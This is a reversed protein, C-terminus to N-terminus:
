FGGIRGGGGWNGGGFGGGRNGFGSNGFGSNGFGSNGLGFNGFGSNGFGSNGFGSNGFGSNGFGGGYNGGMTFANARSIPASAGFIQGIDSANAFNLSIKQVRREPLVEPEEIIEQMGMQGMDMTPAPRVSISYVNDERRFTLQPQNIRAITRLATEFPVNSLSVTVFGEVDPAIAVNLEPVYQFLMQLAARVPADVLKMEKISRTRPDSGTTQAMSPVASLAIAAGVSIALITKKM